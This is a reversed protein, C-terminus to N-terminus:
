KLNLLNKAREKTEEDIEVLVIGKKPQGYLMCSGIPLALVVPFGVLDEEGNVFLLIPKSELYKKLVREIAINVYGQKNEVYVVINFLNVDVLSVEMRMEKGDIVAIDPIFDNSVLTYTVRDGVSSVLKGEDRFSLVRNILEDIKDPTYLTGVPASVKYRSSEPLSIYEVEKFYKYRM